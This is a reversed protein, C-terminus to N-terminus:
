LDIGRDAEAPSQSAREPKDRETERLAEAARPDPKWAWADHIEVKDAEIHISNDIMTSAAHGSPPSFPRDLPKGFWPEEVVRRRIDTVAEAFQQALWDAAKEWGTKNSM